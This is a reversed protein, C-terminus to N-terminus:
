ISSRPLSHVNELTVECIIAFMKSTILAYRITSTTKILRQLVPLWDQLECPNRRQLLCNKLLRFWSNTENGNRITVIITINKIITLVKKVREVILVWCIGPTWNQPVILYRTMIYLTLLRTPILWVFLDHSNFINTYYM